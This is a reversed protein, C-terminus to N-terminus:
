GPKRYLAVHDDARKLRLNKLGNIEKVLTETEEPLIGSKVTDYGINVQILVDLKKNLQQLHRNLAAAIKLRDVTEIM